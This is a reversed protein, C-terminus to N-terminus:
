QEREPPVVRLPAPWFGHRKCPEGSYIWEWRLRPKIRRLCRRLWDMPSVRAKAFVIAEGTEPNCAMVRRVRRGTADYVKAGFGYTAWFEKPYILTM